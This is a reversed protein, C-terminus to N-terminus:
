IPLSRIRIRANEFVVICGKELHTQIATLNSILLSLQKEPRRETRRRFLIVSPKTENRTALMTSFDTDASVLIRDETAARDFITNDDAAQLKYDRVHVADFGEKRLGEAIAPSLANDILFRM